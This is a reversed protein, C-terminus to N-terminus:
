KEPQAGEGIWPFKFIEQWDYQWTPLASNLAVGRFLHFYRKLLRELCDIANDLEQFKPLDRVPEVGLHAVHHDVFSKLKQTRGRLWYGGHHSIVVKQQKM